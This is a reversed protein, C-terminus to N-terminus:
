RLATGRNARNKANTNEKEILSLMTVTSEIIQLRWESIRGLQFAITAASRVDEPALKRDGGSDRPLDILGKREWGRITVASKGLFRALDTVTFTFSDGM